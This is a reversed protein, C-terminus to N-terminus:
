HALRQQTERQFIFANILESVIGKDKDDMNEVAKFLSLLRPDKLNARAKEQTDGNVLYDISVGFVDALRSLVDAPPQVGKNEYRVIQPHSINIRRALEQQTLGNEKSLKQIRKGLGGRQWWFGKQHSRFM